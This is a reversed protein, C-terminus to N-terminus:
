RELKKGCEPCYNYVTNKYDSCCNEEEKEPIIEELESLVESLNTINVAILEENHNIIDEEPYYEYDLFEKIFETLKEKDYIEYEELIEKSTSFPIDVPIEKITAYRVEVVGKIIIDKNM